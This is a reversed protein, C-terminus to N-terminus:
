DRPYEQFLRQCLELVQAAEDTAVRADLESFVSEPPLALVEDGYVSLERDKRLGRSIHAVRDLEDQFWAPFLTRNERVFLGVDHVKPVELAALRLVAKLAM